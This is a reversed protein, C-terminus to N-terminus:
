RSEVWRNRSDIENFGIGLCRDGALHSACPESPVKSHLDRQLSAILGSAAQKERKVRDLETRLTHIENAFTSSM